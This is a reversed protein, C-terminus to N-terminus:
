SNVTVEELTIKEENDRIENSRNVAINHAKDATQEVTTDNRSILAGREAIVRRAEDPAADPCKELLTQTSLYPAEM